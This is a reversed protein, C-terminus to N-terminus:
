ETKKDLASLWTCSDFQIEKYLKNITQLEELDTARYFEEQLLKILYKYTQESLEALVM